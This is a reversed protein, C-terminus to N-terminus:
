FGKIFAVFDWKDNTSDYMFALYDLASAATSLTPSPLSASFRYKTDFTLSWNGSGDQRVKIVIMQGCRQPNAPNGLKRTATLTVDMVPGLQADVAITAADVLATCDQYQRAGCVSWAGMGNRATPSYRFIAFYDGTTSNLFSPILYTYASTDSGTQVMIRAPYSGENEVIVVQHSNADYLRYWNNSNSTPAVRVVMGYDTGHIDIITPSGSTGGAYANGANDIIGDLLLFSSIKFEDYYADTSCITTNDGKIILDVDATADNITVTYGAAATIKVNRYLATLFLDTGDTYLSGRPSAATNGFTLQRSTEFHLNGLGADFTALPTLGNMYIVTDCDIGSSNLEIGLSQGIRVMPTIVGSVAVDIRAVSNQTSLTSTWTSAAVFALKGADALSPGTAEQFRAILTVGLGSSANRTNSLCLMDFETGIGGQKEVSIVYPKVTGGFAFYGGIEQAASDGLVTAATWKPLFNATGSGSPATAAITIDNANNTVTIGAGALVSKLNGIGAVTDRWVLGAGGGVNALNHLGGAVTWAAGDYSYIDDTNKDYVSMGDLPVTGTWAGTWEYVRNITWGNATVKAIYRDGNVPAVPLAATNDFISIVPNLWYVDTFLTASITVNGNPGGDTITIGAGATLVRENTLTANLSMTVYTADVPANGATDDGIWPGKAQAPRISM